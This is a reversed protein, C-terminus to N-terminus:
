LKVSIVDGSARQFTISKGHADSVIEFGDAMVVSFHLLDRYTGTKWVALYKKIAEGSLESNFLRISIINMSLLHQETIWHSHELHFSIMTMSTM